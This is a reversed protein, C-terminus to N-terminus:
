LLWVIKLWDRITLCCFIIIAFGLKKFDPKILFSRIGFSGLIILFPLLPIRFRPFTFFPLLFFIYGAMFLLFIRLWFNHKIIAFSTALFYLSSLLVLWYSVLQGSGFVGRLLNKFSWEGFEFERVMLGEASGGFTAMLYFPKRLVNALAKQPNSLIFKIGEKFYLDNREIESKDSFLFLIKETNKDYTGRSYPNNGIYFNLGSNTSIFVPKQFVFLNRASWLFAPLIFPLCLFFLFQRDTFVKEKKICFFILLFVPFFVPKALVAMGWSLGSVLLFVREKPSLNFRVLGWFGLILLFVVLTESMLVPAFLALDFSFLSLVLAMIGAKRDFVAATIQWILVASLLSLVIQILSVLFIKQGFIKYIFFIFFPQLPPRYAIGESGFFKGKELLNLAIEHYCSADEALTLPLLWWSLLRLILGGLFIM